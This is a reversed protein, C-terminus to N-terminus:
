EPSSNFSRASSSTRSARSSSLVLAYRDDEIRTLEAESALSFTRAARKTPPRDLLALDFQPDDLSAVVVMRRIKGSKYARLFAEYDKFSICGNSDGRPGLGPLRAQRGNGTLQRGVEHVCAGTAQRVSGPSPIGM